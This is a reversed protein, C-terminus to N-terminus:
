HPAGKSQVRAINVSELVAARMTSFETPTKGLGELYAVLILGEAMLVRGAFTRRAPLDMGSFDCAFGSGYNTIPGQKVDQPTALVSREADIRHQLIREFSERSERGRAFTLVTVTLQYSGSREQFLLRDGTSGDLKRWGQPLRIAVGGSSFDITALATALLAAVLNSLSLRYGPGREYPCQM